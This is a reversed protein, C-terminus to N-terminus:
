VGQKSTKANQQMWLKSLALNWWTWLQKLQKDRLRVRGWQKDQTSFSATWTKAWWIWIVQRTKFQKIKGTLKSFKCRWRVIKNRFNPLLSKWKLWRNFDKSLPNKLVWFSKCAKSNKNKWIKLKKLRKWIWSMCNCKSKSRLLKNSLNLTWSQHKNQPLIM